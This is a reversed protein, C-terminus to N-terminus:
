GPEDHEPAIRRAKRRQSRRRGKVAKAGLEAGGSPAADGGKDGAGASSAKSEATKYTVGKGTKALFPPSGEDLSPRLVKSMNPLVIALRLWNKKHWIYGKPIQTVIDSLYVKTSLTTTSTEPVFLYLRIKHVPKPPSM